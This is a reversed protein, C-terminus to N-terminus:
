CYHQIEHIPTDGMYMIKHKGEVKYLTSNLILICEVV